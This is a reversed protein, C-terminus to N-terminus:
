DPIKSYKIRLYNLYTSCISGIEDDINQLPVGLKELITRLKDVNVFCTAIGYDQTSAHEKTYFHTFMSNYAEAIKLSEMSM